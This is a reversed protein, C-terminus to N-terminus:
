FEWPQWQRGAGTPQVFNDHLLSFSALSALLDENKVQKIDNRRTSATDLESMSRHVQFPPTHHEFEYLRKETAHQLGEGLFGTLAM